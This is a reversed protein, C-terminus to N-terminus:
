LSNINPREKLESEGHAYTCMSTDLPCGDPHHAYFWCLKTKYLKDKTSKFDHHFFEKKGVAYSSWDRIRVTNGSVLM